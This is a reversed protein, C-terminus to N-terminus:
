RLRLQVPDQGTEVVIKAIERLKVNNHQSAHVLLDFAQRSPIRRREVLVGIAQGIIERNAMGARLNQVVRLQGLAIGAHAALASAIFQATEDFANPRGARLTLAGLPAGDAATLGVSFSSRIGQVAAQGAFASWRRETATDAVLETSGEAAAILAPDERFQPQTPAGGDGVSAAVTGRRGLLLMSVQDATPVLQRTRELVAGLLEAETECQALETALSTLESVLERPSDAPPQEVLHLATQEEALFQWQLEAHGTTANVTSSARVLVPVLVGDSRRIKGSAESEGQSGSALRGILARIVARDAVEFWIAIPRPTVRATPQRILQEAARNTYLVVGRLDTVVYPNTAAQRLSDREHAVSRMQDQAAVLEEQQVQLEEDAIILQESLETLEKLLETRDSDDPDVLRLLRERRDSLEALFRGLEAPSTM